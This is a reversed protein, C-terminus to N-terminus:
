TYSSLLFYPHIYQFQNKQIPEKKEKQHTWCLQVVSAPSLGAGTIALSGPLWDRHTATICPALRSPFTSAIAPRAIMCVTVYLSNQRITLFSRRGLLSLPINLRAFIPSFWPRHFSVPAGDFFGETYPFRYTHFTHNPVPSVRGLVIIYVPLRYTLSSISTQQSPTLPPLLILSSISLLVM